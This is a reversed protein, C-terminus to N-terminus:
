HPYFWNFWTQKQNFDAVFIAGDRTVCMAAFTGASDPAQNIPNGHFAVLGLYTRKCRNRPDMRVPLWEAIITDQMTYGGM